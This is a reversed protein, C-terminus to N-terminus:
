RYMPPPQQSPGQQNSISPNYQFNPPPYNPHGQSQLQQGGGGGHMMPLHHGSGGALMSSSSPGSQPPYGSQTGHFSGPPGPRFSTPPPVPGSTNGSPPFTSPNPFNSINSGPMQPHSPNGQPPPMMQPQTTGFLQQSGTFQGQQNPPTQMQPKPPQFTPPPANVPPPQSFHGSPGVGGIPQMSQSPFPSGPVSGGPGTQTQHSQTPPANSPPMPYPFSNPKQQSQGLGISPHAPFSPPQPSDMSHPKNYTPMHASPSAQNMDSHPMHPKGGFSSSQGSPLNSGPYSQPFGSNSNGATSIDPTNKDCNSAKESCPTKQKDVFSFLDKIMAITAELQPKLSIISERTLEPNFKFDKRLIQINLIPGIAIANSLDVDDELLVWDGETDKYKSIYEDEINFYKKVLIELDKMTLTAIESKPLAIRKIKDGFRVKVVPRLTDATTFSSSSTHTPRHFTPGLSIRDSISTSSYSSPPNSSMSSSSATPAISYSAQHASESSNSSSTNSNSAGFNNSSGTALNHSELISLNPSTGLDSSTATPMTMLLSSM